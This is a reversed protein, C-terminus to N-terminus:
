GMVAKRRFLGFPLPQLRVPLPCLFEQGRGEVFEEVGPVALRDKRRELVIRLEFLFDDRESPSLARFFEGASQDLPAKAALLKQGGPHEFKRLRQLDDISRKVWNRALQIVIPGFFCHLDFACPMGQM